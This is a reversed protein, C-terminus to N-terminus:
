ELSMLTFCLGDLNNDSSFSTIFDGMFCFGNILEWEAEIKDINNKDNSMFVTILNVKSSVPKELMKMTLYDSSSGYFSLVSIVKSNNEVFLGKDGFLNKLDEIELNSLSHIITDRTTQSDSNKFVANVYEVSFLYLDYPDYIFVFVDEGYNDRINYAADYDDNDPNYDRGFSVLAMVIEGTDRKYFESVIYQDECIEGDIEYLWIEEKIEYLNTMFSRKKCEGTFEYKM